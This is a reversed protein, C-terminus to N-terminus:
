NKIGKVAITGGEPVKGLSPLSSIFTQIDTSTMRGWPNADIDQRFNERRYNKRNDFRDNRRNGYNNRSRSRGLEINPSYGRNIYNGRGRNYQTCDRSYLRERSRYNDQIYRCGTNRCQCVRPKYQSEKKDMKTNM